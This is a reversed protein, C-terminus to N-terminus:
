GTLLEQRIRELAPRDASNMRAAIELIELLGERTRHRGERMLLLVKWFRRMEVNKRTKLPHQFFFECIRELCELRRVRYAYRDEHNPRVVGCRFFRKLAYLVQVDRRHQVVVFEPLVQYGVKMSPHRIISIHFCGEGDVFGVVWDPSLEM